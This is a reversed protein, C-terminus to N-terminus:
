EATSNSYSWRTWGARRLESELHAMV